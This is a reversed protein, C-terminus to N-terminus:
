AARETKDKAIKGRVVAATEQDGLYVRITRINREAEPIKIKEFLNVRQSTTRLEDRLLRAQEDLVRIELDFAVVARLEDVARDVWPPALFVDYGPTEFDAGEFVPLGVGAINGRGTRVDAVRLPFRDPGFGLSEAEAFVAIWPRAETELADRKVGLDERRSEVSRIEAQLQQKKLQLTPLYRLYMKLADREKKLANKTLKLKAM